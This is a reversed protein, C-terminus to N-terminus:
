PALHDCFFRADVRGLHGLQRLGEFFLQGAQDYALFRLDAVRDDGQDVVYVDGTTNNVAVGSPEKLQGPGCPIGSCPEGFSIGLVYEKLALAPAAAFVLAALTTLLFAVALPARSSAGSGRISKPAGSGSTRLLAGLTAFFGTKPTSATNAIQETPTVTM